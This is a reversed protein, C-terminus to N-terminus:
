PASLAEQVTEYLPFLKTLKTTVLIERVLPQLAALRLGAGKDRGLKHARMFAGLCSSSLFPVDSLDLVLLKAGSEIRAAMEGGLEHSEVETLKGHPRIIVRDERKEIEMRVGAPLPEDM